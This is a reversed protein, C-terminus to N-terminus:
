LEIKEMIPKGKKNWRMRWRDGYQVNQVIEPSFAALCFGNENRVSPYIIGRAGEGRLKEAFKQTDKYIELNAELIGEGRPLRKACRFIGTFNAFIEQLVVGKKNGDVDWGMASLQRKQHYSKEEVATDHDLACYWAGNKNDNFRSYGETSNIFTTNVIDMGADLPATQRDLDELTLSEDVDSTDEDYSDERIITILRFTSVPESLKIDPLEPFSIM